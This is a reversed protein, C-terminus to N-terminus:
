GLICSTKSTATSTPFNKSEVRELYEVLFIVYNWVHGKTKKHFGAWCKKRYKYISGDQSINQLQSLNYWDRIISWVEKTFVCDKFLHVPNEPDTKCLKCIPDHTWNRKSLNHATFFDAYLPIWVFAIKKRVKSRWILLIKIKTFTGTFQIQYASKIHYIWWKLNCMMWRTPSEYIYPCGWINESFPVSKERFTRFSLNQLLPQIANTIVCIPFIETKSMNLRLGLCNEFAHLSKNISTWSQRKPSFPQMMWMFLVDWIQWRLLLVPQLIGIEEM